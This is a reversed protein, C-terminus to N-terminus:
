HNMVSVTLVHANQMLKLSPSFLGDARHKLYWVAPLRRSEEHYGNGENPFSHANAAPHIERWTCRDARIAKNGQRSGAAVSCIQRVPACPQGPM